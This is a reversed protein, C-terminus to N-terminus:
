EGAARYIGLRTDRSGILHVLGPVQTALLLVLGLLGAQHPRALPWQPRWRSLGRALLELGLGATAILGPTLPAYYWFYRSVGLAAYAAFYLAEWVLLWLL